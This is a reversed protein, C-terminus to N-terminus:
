LLFFNTALLCPSITTRFVACKLGRADTQKEIFFSIKQHSFSQTVHSHESFYERNISQWGVSLESSRFFTNVFKSRERAGWVWSKDTQTWRFLGCEGRRFPHKGHNWGSSFSTDEVFLIKYILSNYKRSVSVSM